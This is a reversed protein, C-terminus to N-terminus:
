DSLHMLGGLLAWWEKRKQAMMEEWERLCWPCWRDRSEKKLGGLLEYRMPDRAGDEVLGSQLVMSRWMETPSVYRRVSCLDQRCTSKDKENVCPAVVVAERWRQELVHRANYLRLLDDEYLPIQRRDANLAAWFEASAILEYFARKLVRPVDYRRALLIVSLAERYMHEAPAEPHADSSPATSLPAPFLTDSYSPAQPPLGNGWYAALCEKAFALVAECRLAHAARLLATATTQAPWEKAYMLPRELVQLLCQFDHARLEAPVHYVPCGDVIWREGGYGVGNEHTASSSGPGAGLGPVVLQVFFGCHDALRSRHLRFLKNEVAIVVNGDAYYYQHSKDM